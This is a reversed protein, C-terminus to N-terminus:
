RRSEAAVVRCHHGPRIDALEGDVLEAVSYRQYLQVVRVRGLRQGPRHGLVDGTDPDVVRQGRALVDYETGLYV